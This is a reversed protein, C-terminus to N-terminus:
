IVPGDIVVVASGTTPHSHPGIDVLPNTVDLLLVTGAIPTTRVIPTFNGTYLTQTNIHLNTILGTWNQYNVDTIRCGIHLIDAANRLNSDSYGQLQTQLVGNIYLKAFAGGGSPVLVAALHAWEGATPEPWASNNAGLGLSMGNVQYIDIGNDAGAGAGQSIIGGNWSGGNSTTDIGKQWWEITGNLGLAWDTTTGLIDLQTGQTGNFSLSKLIPAATTTTTTSTTSTSTTTTTTPPVLGFRFKFFNYNQLQEQETLTRNYMLVVAIKGKMHRSDYGSTGVYLKGNDPFAPNNNNKAGGIINWGSVMQNTVQGNVYFTSSPNGWDDDNGNNPFQWNNNYIRLSKDNPISFLGAFGGLSFDPEIIMTFDKYINESTTWISSGFSNSGGNGGSNSDWNFYSNSGSDVYSLHGYDNVVFGTNNTTSLDNITSGNGSYSSPNGFDYYLVLGDLVISPAATTTTTPAATTTTTTTSTTTTTTPVVKKVTSSFGNTIIIAM